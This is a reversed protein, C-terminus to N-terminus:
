VDYPSVVLNIEQVADMSIPNTETQGGPTGQAALGFLDNKVSGDIQINNYRNNRGAVTISTSGSNTSATSFYPDLRAYDAIEGSLTPTMAIAIESVLSSAGTRAPNIIPNSTATVTLTEAVAQLQMAFNISLEEGLSTTLGSRTLPSFGQLEATVAYPGGVRVNFVSFRGDARTYATYRTGTPEHVISVTVGPLAVGDPDTVTGVVSSTTTGQAFASPTWVLLLLIAVLGACLLARTCSKM